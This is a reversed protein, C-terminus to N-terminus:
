PVNDTFVDFTRQAPTAARCRALSAEVFTIRAAPIADYLSIFEQFKGLSVCQRLFGPLAPAIDSAILAARCQMYRVAANRDASHAGAVERLLAEMEALADQTSFSHQAVKM